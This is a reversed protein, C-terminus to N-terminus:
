SYIDQTPVCQPLIFKYEDIVTSKLLSAFNSCVTKEYIYITYKYKTATLVILLLKMGNSQLGGRKKKERKKKEEKRIWRESM